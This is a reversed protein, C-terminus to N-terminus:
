VELDDVNVIPHSPAPIFRVMESAKVVGALGPETIKTTDLRMWWVEGWGSETGYVTETM